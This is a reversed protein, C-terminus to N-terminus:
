FHARCFLSVKVKICIMRAKNAIDNPSVKAYPQLQQNIGNVCRLQNVKNSVVNPRLRPQKVSQINQIARIQG